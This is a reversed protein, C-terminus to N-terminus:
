LEKKSKHALPCEQNEICIKHVIQDVPVNNFFLSELEEEFKSKLLECMTSIRPPSFKYTRFYKPSCINEIIDMIANERGKKGIKLDKTLLGIQEITARCAECKLEEQDAKPEYITCSSLYVFCM